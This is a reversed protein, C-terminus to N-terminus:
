KWKISCGISPKQNAPPADGALLQELADRFDAGSAVGQGPRTDDFQGHYYLKLDADYVFLEPTCAAGYARAVSQDEDILYPFPFDKALAREKMKDPADAPYSVFDNASIAAFRVGRAVFERAIEVLRDEIHVVYPCHNCIFLVAVGHENKLEQLSVSKGSVTDPLDFDPAISGLPQTQSNLLGM